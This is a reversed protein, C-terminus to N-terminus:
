VDMYRRLRNPAKTKGLAPDNSTRHAGVTSARRCGAKSHSRRLLLSSAQGGDEAPSRWLVTARGGPLSALHEQTLSHLSLRQLKAGAPTGNGGPPHLRLHATRPRCLCVCGGSQEGAPSLPSPFLAPHQPQALLAAKGCAADVDRKVRGWPRWKWDKRSHCCSLLHRQSTQPSPSVPCSVWGRHM